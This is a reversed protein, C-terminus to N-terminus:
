YKRNGDYLEKVFLLMNCVDAVIAGICIMVITICIIFSLLYIWYGGSIACEVGFLITAMILMTAIVSRLILIGIRKIMQEYFKQEDNKKDNKIQYKSM